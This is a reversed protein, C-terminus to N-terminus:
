RIKKPISDIFDFILQAAGHEYLDNHGAGSIFKAAKPQNAADFLARGFQVPIVGDREGHVVLVPLNINTIKAKSDFRDYVLWRTPVFPFRRGAIDTISTYPAELVLARFPKGTEFAMQVAVGSGLSEGYLVTNEESVGIKALFAMAARADTYLGQETPSGPNGSYGRWSTLLVGWGADLYPRVKSARNGLHGANGHFYVLVPANDRLPPRWWAVLELHDSTTMAVVRMDAVGYDGPAPRTPDPHYIFRRQCGALLAIALLYVVAVGLVIRIM